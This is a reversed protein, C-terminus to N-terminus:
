NAQKIKDFYVDYSNEYQEEIASVFDEKYKDSFGIFTKDGIITYPVGKVEDGMNSAFTNLIDINEEHYWTEFTYLNYCKGYEEEISDFFEFEAECHPCGDGWFFYINVIGEEKKIDDLSINSTKSTDESISQENDEISSNDNKEKLKVYESFWEKFEEKSSYYSIDSDKNAELFDVMKGNHYIIFSPYYKIEKGLETDKINSFSIKYISISNEQLFDNLISEFDSSITCMPQYVFVAFSESNDILQNLEDMEIEKIDYNGYYKEELFFEKEKRFPLFVIVFLVIVILFIIKFINKKM